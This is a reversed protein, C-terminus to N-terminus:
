GGKFLPIVFSLVSLIQPTAFRLLISRDFPWVPYKIKDPHLEQIVGLKDSSIKAAAVDNNEINQRMEDWCNKLLMSYENEYKQRGKEMVQHFSWLPNFFVFIALPIAVIFLAVNEFAVVARHAPDLSWIDLGRLLIGFLALYVIAILIPAVMFFCFNGVPRLGGCNDPHSPKINISFTLPLKKIYSATVYMAWSCAGVCYAWLIVAFIWKISLALQWFWEAWSHDTSFLNLSRSIVGSIYAPILALVIFIVILVLRKRSEFAQKYNRLYALFSVELQYQENLPSLLGTRFIAEFVNKTQRQWIVFSFGALLFGIGALNFVLDHLFVKEVYLLIRDSSSSISSILKPSKEVMNHANITNLDVDLIATIISLLLLALYPIIVILYWYRLATREARYPFLHFNSWFGKIKELYDPKQENIQRTM